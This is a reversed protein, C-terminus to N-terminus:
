IEVCEEGGAIEVGAFFDKIKVFGIRGTNDDRVVFSYNDWLDDSMIKSM